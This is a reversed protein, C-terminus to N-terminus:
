GLKHLAAQLTLPGPQKSAQYSLPLMERAVLHSGRVVELATARPGRVQQVKPIVYYSFGAGVPKGALILKIRVRSGGAYTLVLRIDRKALTSGAVVLYARSTFLAGHGEQVVGARLAHTQSRSPGGGVRGDKGISFMHWYGNRTPTAFITAGGLRGVVIHAAHRLDSPPERGPAYLPAPAFRVFRVDLQKNRLAFWFRNPSIDAFRKVVWLGTLIQGAPKDTTAYLLWAVPDHTRADLAIWEGNRFSPAFTQQIRGIWIVKRGRYTATGPRRVFKTTDVPWYRYFLVEPSATQCV